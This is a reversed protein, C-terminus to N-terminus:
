AQEEKKDAEIDQAKATYKRGSCSHRGCSACDFEMCGDAPEGAKKARSLKVKNQIAILIALVFFAGPAMIMISFPEYFSPLSFGKFSVATGLLQDLGAFVTGTGILERVAVLGITFGLGMGIGDFISSIVDNKSAYAEARGLIICNVVILPIYIGLSKYLTPVFGEM